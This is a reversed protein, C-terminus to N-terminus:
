VERDVRLDVPRTATAHAVLYARHPTRDLFDEPITYKSIDRIVAGVPVLEPAPSFGRSNTSFWIQGQPSLWPLTMELLRPWDREISFSNAVMRKSNSFTPPDLVIIDFADGSRPGAELMQLCDAQVFEHAASEFGNLRMNRRSWEQYTNSMDVTVTSAAGGAAAYVTFAGTYAFLNLVRRGRSRERVMARTTRHDLFLGTDLFDSLNIEFKLGQEEICRVVETESVREYQAIGRQRQRSKEFLHSPDIKLSRFIHELSLQHFEAEAEPTDDRTRPHFWVVVDGDYWDIVLPFEPIDREYLRFCPTNTRRSWKQLHRMRKELRNDLM